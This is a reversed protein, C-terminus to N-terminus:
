CVLSTLDSWGYAVERLAIGSQEDVREGLVTGGLREYFRRASTNERLVWLCAASRGQDLLKRAILSMLARGLGARQHSKLVYVAGIEGDFGQDRLAEDRQGGCAGFGVIAGGSEALFVATGSNPDSLTASWMASRAETSLGNLLEDPLLRAYTERWSAVHMAGIAPADDADAQRYSIADM